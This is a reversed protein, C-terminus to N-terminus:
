VPWGQMYSKPQTSASRQSVVEPVQAAPAEVPVAHVELEVHMDPMHALPQQM